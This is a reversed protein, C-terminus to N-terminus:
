YIGAAMQNFKRQHNHTWDMHCAHHLVQVRRKSLAAELKEITGSQILRQIEDQRQKKLGLLPFLQCINCQCNIGHLHDIDFYSENGSECLIDPMLCKCGNGYSDYQCQQQTKWQNVFKRNESIEGTHSFWGNERATKDRHCPACIAQLNGINAALEVYCSFFSRIDAWNKIKFEPNKHDIELFLFEAHCIFCKGDGDAFLLKYEAKMAKVAAYHERHYLLIEERNEQYYTKQYLLFEEHNEQRYIKKTQSHQQCQHEQKQESPLSRTFNHKESYKISNEPRPASCSKCKGDRREDFSKCRKGFKPCDPNRCNWQVGIASHRERTARAREREKRKIERKSLKPM